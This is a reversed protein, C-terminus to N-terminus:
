LGRCVGDGEIRGEPLPWSECVPSDYTPGMRPSLSTARISGIKPPNPVFMRAGTKQDILVPRQRRAMFERARDPDVVHYRFDLFYGAATLRLCSVRVGCDNDAAPEVVREMPAESDALRVAGDRRTAAETRIGSEDTARPDASMCASILSFAILVVTYGADRTRNWTM